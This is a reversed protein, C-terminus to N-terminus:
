DSSVYLMPQNSDQLSLVTRAQVAAFANQIPLAARGRYYNDLQSISAVRELVAQPKLHFVAILPM